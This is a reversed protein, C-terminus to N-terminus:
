RRPRASPRSRPASGRSEQAGVPAERERRSCRSGGPLEGHAPGGSCQDSSFGALRPDSEHFNVHQVLCGFGHHGSGPLHLSAELRDQHDCVFRLGRTARWPVRRPRRQPEATSRAVRRRNRRGLLHCKSCGGRSRVRSTPRIACRGRPSYSSTTRSKTSVCFGIAARGPRARSAEGHDGVLLRDAPAGDRRDSGHIHIRDHARKRPRPSM